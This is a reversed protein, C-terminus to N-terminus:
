IPHDPFKELITLNTCLGSPPLVTLWKCKQLVFMGMLSFLFRTASVKQTHSKLWINVNELGKSGERYYPSLQLVSRSLISHSNFLIHM